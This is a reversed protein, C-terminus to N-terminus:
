RKIEIPVILNPDLGYKVFIDELTGNAAIEKMGEEYAQLLADNGDLVANGVFIERTASFAIEYREPDEAIRVAAAGVNDLLFDARGSDLGRLAADTETAVTITIPKEGNAVCKASQEQLIPLSYSGSVGNTKLGCLDDMSQVGKPNGKPVLMASGAKMYIIFDAKEAREPTYYLNAVMVDTQGNLITPLLSSWVGKTYEYTLGVCELAKESVEIDSGVMKDKAMDTYSYPAYLPTTAVRVPKGALEPYKEAVKEPECAAQASAALAAIGAAAILTNQLKTM